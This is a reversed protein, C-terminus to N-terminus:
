SRGFMFDHLVDIANNGHKRPTSAVVSTSGPRTVDNSALRGSIKQQTKLPRCSAVPKRRRVTRRTRVRGSSIFYNQYRDSVAIGAFGPLIWADAMSDMSQTGLWLASYREIFAGYRVKGGGTPGSPLATVDFGVM